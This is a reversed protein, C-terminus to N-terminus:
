RDLSASARSGSGHPLMLPGGGPRLMAEAEAHRQDRTEEDRTEPVWTTLTLMFMLMLM